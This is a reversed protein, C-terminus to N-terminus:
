GDHERGLSSHRSGLNREQRSQCTEFDVIAGYSLAITKLVM